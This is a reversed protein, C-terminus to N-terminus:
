SNSRTVTWWDVNCGFLQEVLELNSSYARMFPVILQLQRATTTLHDDYTVEVGVIRTWIGSVDFRKESKGFPFPFIILFLPLHQSMHIFKYSRTSFISDVVLREKYELQLCTFHTYLLYSGMQSLKSSHLILTSRQFYFNKPLFSSNSM